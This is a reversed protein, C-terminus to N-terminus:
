ISSPQVVDLLIGSEQFLLLMLTQKHKATFVYKNQETIGSFKNHREKQKHHINQRSICLNLFLMQKM